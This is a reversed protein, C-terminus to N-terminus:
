KRTTPEVPFGNAVPLNSLGTVGQINGNTHRSPGKNNTHNKSDTFIMYLITATLTLALLFLMADSVKMYYEDDM